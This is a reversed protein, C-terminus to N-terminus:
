AHKLYIGPVQVAAWCRDFQADWQMQLRDDPGSWGGGCGLVEQHAGERKREQDVASVRGWLAAAQGAELSEALARERAAERGWGGQVRCHYTSIRCQKLWAAVGEADSHRQVRGYSEWMDQRLRGIVRHVLERSLVRSLVLRAAAERPMVAAMVAAVVETPVGRSSM